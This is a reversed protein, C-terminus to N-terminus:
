VSDLCKILPGIGLVPHLINRLFILGYRSIVMLGISIFLMIVSKKKTFFDNFGYLKFYGGLLYLFILWGASYGSGAAHFPDLMFLTPLISMLVGAIVLLKKYGSQTLRKALLNLFPACMFVFFYCSIYWLRESFLPFTNLLFDYVSGQGFFVACIIATIFCWFFTEALIRIISAHHQDRDIKLYGSLLGFVNVSCRATAFLLDVVIQNGIGLPHSPVGGATVHLTVVGFIAIARALDLRLDRKNVM